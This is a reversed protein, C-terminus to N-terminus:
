VYLCNYINLCLVTFTKVKAKATSTEVKIHKNHPSFHALLLLDAIADSGYPDSFRANVRIASVDNLQKLAGAGEMRLESKLDIKYVWIGPSDISMDLLKNPIDRRGGGGMEVSTTVEM